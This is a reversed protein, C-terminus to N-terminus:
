ARRVDAGGQLLGPFAWLAAAVTAGFALVGAALAVLPGGQFSIVALAMPGSLGLGLVLPRVVPVPFRARRCAHAACSLLVLEAAAFGAAGGAAGFRPILLAALLAAAAVRVATLRPLWPARGAAVLAHLLVANLFMAPLAAAFVQLPRGAGAFEPGFLLELLRPGVLALGVAAPVGLVAATTATRERVPGHGHQGERVLSPM